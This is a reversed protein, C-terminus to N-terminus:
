LLPNGCDAVTTSDNFYVRQQNPLDVALRTVSPFTSHLSKGLLRWCAESAFIYRSANVWSSIEDRENDDQQVQGAAPVSSLAMSTFAAATSASFTAVEPYTATNDSTTSITMKPKTSNIWNSKPNTAIRQSTDTYINSPKFGQM